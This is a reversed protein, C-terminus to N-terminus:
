SPYTNCTHQSNEPKEVPPGEQYEEKPDRIILENDLVHKVGIKVLYVALNSFQEYVGYM